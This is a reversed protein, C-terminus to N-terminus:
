GHEPHRDRVITQIIEESERDARTVYDLVGKQTIEKPRGENMRMILMAGATRAAHIATQLIQETDSM